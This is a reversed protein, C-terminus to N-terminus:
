KGSKWYNKPTFCVTKRVLICRYLDFLSEVRKHCRKLNIRINGSRVWKLNSRLHFIICTSLKPREGLFCVYSALNRVKNTLTVVVSQKVMTVLILKIRRKLLWKTNQMIMQTGAMKYFLKELNGFCTKTDDDSCGPKDWVFSKM